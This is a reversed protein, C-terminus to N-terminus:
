LSKLLKIFSDWGGLATAYNQDSNAETVPKVRSCWVTAGGTISKCKWKYDTATDDLDVFNGSTCVNLKVGCVADVPTVAPPIPKSCSSNTGGDIGKCKWLYDAETDAIDVFTGSTCTDKGGCVGNIPTAVPPAVPIIRSCSSNKGGNIGNCTWLYNTATDILDSFTGASCGNLATSCVANVPTVVPPVPPAAIKFYSDSMDNVTKGAVGALNGVLYIKYTGPKVAIEAGSNSDTFVSKPDWYITNGSSVNGIIGIVGEGNGTSNAPVLSAFVTSLMDGNWTIAYQKGQVLKEGGNPSLVTISPVVPTPPAVIKFYSDSVDYNCDPEASFCQNGNKGPAVVIIKYSGPTITQLEKGSLDGIRNTDWYIKDNPNGKLQIWGLVTRDKPFTDKVVGIKVPYKGGSWKILSDSGQVFTEGGNPSLVSLSIEATTTSTSGVVQFWVINSKGTVSDIVFLNHNGASLSKLLFINSTGDTDDVGGTLNTPVVDDIYLTQSTNPGGALRVGSVNVQIGGSNTASSSVSTIYPSVEGIILKDNTQNNSADISFASYPDGYFGVVSNFKAVYSGAFLIKPSVLSVAIFKESTGKPIIYYAQSNTDLKTVLSSVSQIGSTAWFYNHDINTLNSFTVQNARQYVYLDKDAGATISLNFTAKLESEKQAQDYFLQLMPDSAVSVFNETSTPRQPHEPTTTATSTSTVSSCNFAALAVPAKEAPIVGIMILINVLDCNSGSAASVKASPMFAGLIFVAAIIFTALVGRSFYKKM